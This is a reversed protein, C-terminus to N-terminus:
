ATLIMDLDELIDAYQSNEHSHLINLFKSFNKPTSSIAVLIDDRQKRPAREALLDCYQEWTLMQRAYCEALLDGPDVLLRRRLTSFHKM